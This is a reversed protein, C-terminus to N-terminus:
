SVKTRMERILKYIGFVFCILSPIFFFILVFLITMLVHSSYKLAFYNTLYWSSVILIPLSVAIILYYVYRRNKGYLSKYKVIGYLGIPILFLSVYFMVLTVLFILGIILLAISLYYIQKNKKDIMKIDDSNMGESEDVKKYFFLTEEASVKKKEIVGLWVLYNLCKEIAETDIQLISSLRLQTIGSNDIKLYDVVKKSNEIIKKKSPTPGKSSKPTIGLMGGVIILFTPIYIYPLFIM